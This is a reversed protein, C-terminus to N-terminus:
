FAYSRAYSAKEREWVGVADIRGCNGTEAQRGSQPLQTNHSLTTQKRPYSHVISTTQWPGHKNGAEDDSPNARNLGTRLGGLGLTPSFECDEFDETGCDWLGGTGRPVSLSQFPSGWHYLIPQM